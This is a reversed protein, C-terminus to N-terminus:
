SLRAPAAALLHDYFAEMRNVVTQWTYQRTVLARGQRGLKQAVERDGLLKLVADAFDRPQDAIVLHELHKVDIGECGLSTSVVAKAMSLGEVVKLRTGGGMRLPVVLLASKQIYPRVDPVTDTVVVNPGALRKLEDSAGAGVIYFVVNPRSALIHPFIEQLFYLAGDINPRYHMLGTMTLANGDISEDSPSFYDVDVANPVVATPTGPAAQQIIKEERESTIMCGSVDHWSRIEERRFKAFELWNYFRRATSQETQYMRYLLEYEINHEDLVRAARRDFAFGAMQSSEIQIVDFRERSTVDDLQQQMALSHRNRRQYSRGSFVSALQDLRKRHETEALRPVTHVATCVDALAAVKGGEGPEEYTLLSVAHKRGLLRLFQYVRTGFGWIPPYPLSPTMVLIRLRPSAPAPEPSAEVRGVTM